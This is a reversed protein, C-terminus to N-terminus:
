AKAAERIAKRIRMYTGCRCLIGAMHADIEDDTPNPNEALLSAAQMIQGTQCYGCQPVQMDIWAKQLPHDGNKGLGEITVVQQGAVAEVPLVCARVAQGDVLVTCAGCQAIGCAYKAGKLQLVDRLVWLLPMEPDVDLQRARGNITVSIM